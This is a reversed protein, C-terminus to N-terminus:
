PFRLFIDIQETQNLHSISFTQFLFLSYLGPAYDKISLNQRANDCGICSEDFLARRSAINPSLSM